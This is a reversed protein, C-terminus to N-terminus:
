NRELEAINRNLEKIQRDLRESEEWKDSLEAHAAITQKKIESEWWGSCQRWGYSRGELFSWVIITIYLAVLIYIIIIKM